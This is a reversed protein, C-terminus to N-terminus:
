PCYTGDDVLGFGPANCYSHPNKGSGHDAAAPGATLVLTFSTALAAMLIKRM